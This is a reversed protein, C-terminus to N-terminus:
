SKGTFNVNAESTGDVCATYKIRGRTKFFYDKCIAKPPRYVGVFLIDKLDKNNIQSEHVALVEILNFKNAPSVRKTIIMSSIFAM